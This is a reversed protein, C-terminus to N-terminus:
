DTDMLAECQVGSPTRFPFVDGAGMGSRDTSVMSETYCIGASLPSRFPYANWSRAQGDGTDPGCPQPLAALDGGGM